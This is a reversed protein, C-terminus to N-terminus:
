ERLGIKGADLRVELDHVGNGTWDFSSSFATMIVVLPILFGGFRRVRM